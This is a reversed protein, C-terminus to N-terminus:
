KKMLWVSFDHIKDFIYRFGCISIIVQGLNVNANGIFLCGTLIAFVVLALLITCLIAKGKTM